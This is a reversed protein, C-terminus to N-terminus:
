NSHTSYCKTYNKILPTKKQMVKHKQNRDDQDNKIKMERDIRKGITKNIKNFKRRLSKM